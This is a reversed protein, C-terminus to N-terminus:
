SASCVHQGPHPWGRDNPREPRRQGQDTWIRTGTALDLAMIRQGGVTAFLTSGVVGGNPSVFAGVDLRGWRVTGTAADLAVLQGDSSGVVVLGDAVADIYLNQGTSSSWPAPWAPRGTTADFAYLAHPDTTQVDLGGAVFVRGDAVTPTSTNGPQLAAIGM